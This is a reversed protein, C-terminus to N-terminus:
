TRFQKRHDVLLLREGRASERDPRVLQDAEGLLEEDEVVPAVLRLDQRVVKGKSARHHAWDSLSPKQLGERPELDTVSKRVHLGVGVVEVHVRELAIPDPEGGPGDARVSTNEGARDLRRTLLNVRRRLRAADREVLLPLRGLQCSAVHHVPVNAVGVPKAPHEAEHPGHPLARELEEGFAPGPLWAQSVPKEDEDRTEERLEFLSHAGGCLSGLSVKCMKKNCLTIM